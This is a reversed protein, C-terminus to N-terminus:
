RKNKATWTIVEVKEEIVVHFSSLVVHKFLLGLPRNTPTSAGNGTTDDDVPVLGSAM